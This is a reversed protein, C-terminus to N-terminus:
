GYLEDDSAWEKSNAYRNNDFHLNVRTEEWHANSIWETFRMNQTAGKTFKVRNLNNDLFTYLTHFRESPSHIELLTYVKTFASNPYFAIYATGLKLENSM